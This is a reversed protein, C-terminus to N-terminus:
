ASRLSTRIADVVVNVGIESAIDFAWKGARSLYKFTEDRNGDRAAAEANAIAGLAIDQEPDNAQARMARRLLSLQKALEQLDVKSLEINNKRVVNKTNFQAHDRVSAGMINGTYHYKGLTSGGQLKELPAIQLVDITEGSPSAKWYV